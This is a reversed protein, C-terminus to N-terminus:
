LYRWHRLWLVITLLTTSPGEAWICNVKATSSYSVLLGTFCLFPQQIINMSTTDSTEYDPVSYGEELLQIGLISPLNGVGIWLDFSQVLFYDPTLDDGSQWTYSFLILFYVVNSRIQTARRHGGPASWVGECWETTTLLTLRDRRVESGVNRGNHM